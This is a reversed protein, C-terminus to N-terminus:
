ITKLKVLLRRSIYTNLQLLKVARSAFAFIAWVCYLVMLIFPLKPPVPNQIALYALFATFPIALFMPAQMRWSAQDISFAGRQFEEYDERFSTLHRLRELYQSRKWRSKEGSPQEQLLELLDQLFIKLEDDSIRDALKKIAGHDAIVEGGLPYYSFAMMFASYIYLAAFIRQPWTHVLFPLLVMSVLTGIRCSSVWALHNAGRLSATHELEHLLIFMQHTNM